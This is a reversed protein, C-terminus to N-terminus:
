KKKKGKTIFQFTKTEERCNRTQKYTNIYNKLFEHTNYLGFPM